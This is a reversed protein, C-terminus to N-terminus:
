KPQWFPSHGFQQNVYRAPPPGTRSFEHSRARSDEPDRRRELECVRRELQNHSATIMDFRESIGLLQHQLYAIVDSDRDRKKEPQELEHLDDPLQADTGEKKPAWQFFDCARNNGCCLFDKGANPGELYDMRTVCPTGCKCPKM